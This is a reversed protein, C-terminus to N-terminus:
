QSVSLPARERGGSQGDRGQPRRLPAAAHTPCPASTKSPTGPNCHGVDEERDRYRGFSKSARSPRGRGRPCRPREAPVQPRVPRSGAPGHSGAREPLQRGPDRRSRAAHAGRQVGGGGGGTLQRPRRRLPLARTQPGGAAPRRKMMAKANGEARPEKLPARDVTGTWSSPEVTMM